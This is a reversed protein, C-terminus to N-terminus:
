MRNITLLQRRIEREFAMPGASQTVICIETAQAQAADDNMQHLCEDPTGAVARNDAFEELTVAQGAKARAVIEPDKDARAGADWYDVDFQLAPELWEKEIRQRSERIGVHRMM